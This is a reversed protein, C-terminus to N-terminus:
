ITVGVQPLQQHGHPPVRHDQLHQPHSPCGAGAEHGRLHGGSEQWLAGGDLGLLARCVSAAPPLRRLSPCFLVWVCIHWHSLCEPVRPLILLNLFVHWVLLTTTLFFLVM